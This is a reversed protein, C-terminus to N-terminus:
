PLRKDQPLRGIRLMLKYGAFTTAAGIAVVLGGTPSGYAHAAEPRLSMLVLVAWPAAAATRAAAVTWSWRAEIEKRVRQDERVFDSLTRLVRVLDTGGVEHAVELAAIVKDATPDALEDKMRRLSAAFSGSSRYSAAFTTFGQRLGKPARQELRGCAEPLSMGSRVSSILAALVDPWEERFAALRKTAKSRVYALPLWSAALALGTSIVLSGTLGAGLILCMAGTASCLALLRGGTLRDVGSSRALEDLRRLPERAPRERGPPATLGEYVLLLGVAGLLSIAATM